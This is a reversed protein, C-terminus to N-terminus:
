CDPSALLRCFLFLLHRYLINTIILTSIYPSNYLFV